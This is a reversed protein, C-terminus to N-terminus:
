AAILGLAKLATVIGGVTYASAGAAGAWVSDSKSATGVGAVFGTADISVAPQVVPTVGYFSLKQTTATAIKTGTVTGFIENAGDAYTVSTNQPIATTGELYNQLEIAASPSALGVALRKALDASISM